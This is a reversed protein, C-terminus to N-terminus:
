EALGEINCIEAIKNKLEKLDFPKMILAAVDLDTTEQVFHRDSYASMLVVKVRRNTDRLRKLVEIGNMGPMKVDLLILDPNFKPILELAAIGNSCSEIAECHGSFVETLLMRIGKQDDVILLRM